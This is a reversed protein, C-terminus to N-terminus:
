VAVILKITTNKWGKGFNCVRQSGPLCQKAFNISIPRFSGALIASQLFYSHAAAFQTKLLLNLIIIVPPMTKLFSSEIGPYAIGLIDEKNYVFYLAYCQKFKKFQYSM